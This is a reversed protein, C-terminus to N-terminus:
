VAPGPLRQDRCAALAQEIAPRVDVLRFIMDFERYEVDRARVVLREALLLDRLFPDVRSEGTLLARRDEVDWMMRRPPLRDFRYTLPRDGTFLNGRALWRRSHVAVRAGDYEAPDCSVVLRHGGDRVTAYARIDDTIPDEIVEVDMPRPPPDVAALALAMFLMQLENRRAAAYTSRAASAIAGRGHAAHAVGRGPRSAAGTM